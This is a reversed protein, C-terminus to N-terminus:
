AARQTALPVDSARTRVVVEDDFLCSMAAIEAERGTWLALVRRARALKTEFGSWGIEIPIAPRVPMLTLGRIPDLHVESVEMGGARRVLALARRLVRPPLADSTAVEPDVGTVFPLDRRDGASLPAIVRGRASLYFERRGGGDLALVAAAREERVDIVVRHPLDRRIRASRIWPLRALRDAVADRDVDWISTGPEIGAARRVDDASLHRANRVSVERVAFYSHRRLAAAVPPGVAVALAALSLTAILALTATRLLARRSANGRRRNRSGLRVIAGVLQRRAPGRAGAM